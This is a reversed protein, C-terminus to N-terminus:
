SKDIRTPTTKNVPCDKDDYNIDFPLFDGHKNDCGNDDDDEDADDDDDDDDADCRYSYSYIPLHQEYHTTRIKPKYGVNFCYHLQRTDQIDTGAAYNNQRRRKRAAATKM